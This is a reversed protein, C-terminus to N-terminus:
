SLFKGKTHLSFQARDLCFLAKKTKQFFGRANALASARANEESFNFRLERTM